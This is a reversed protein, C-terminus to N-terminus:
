CSAYDLTCILYSQFINKYSEQPKYLKKEYMYTIHIYTYIYVYIYMYVVVQNRGSIEVLVWHKLCLLHMFIVMPLTFIKKCSLALLRTKLWPDKSMWDVAVRVTNCVSGWEQLCPYLLLIHIKASSTM